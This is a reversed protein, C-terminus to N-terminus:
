KLKKQLDSMFNYFASFEANSLQARSKKKFQSADIEKELTEIESLIIQDLTLNDENDEYFRLM